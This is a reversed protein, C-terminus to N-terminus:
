KAKAQAAVQNSQAVAGRARPDAVPIVAKGTLLEVVSPLADSNERLKRPRTYVLPLRMRQGPKLKIRMTDITFRMEQSGINIVEETNEDPDGAEIVSTDTNM